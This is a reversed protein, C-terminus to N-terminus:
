KRAEFILNFPTQAARSFRSFGAQFIFDAIKSEGAQAGLAASGEQSLSNPTCFATSAAYFIPGVPNFGQEVRDGAKPEVLVGYVLLRFSFLDNDTVALATFVINDTVIGFFGLTLQYDLNRM